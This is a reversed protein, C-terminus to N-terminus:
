HPPRGRRGMTVLGLVGSLFLWVAAPLPVASVVNLRLIDTGYDNFIEWQLALSNDWLTDYYFAGFEGTIDRAFMLDFSQGLSFFDESLFSIDLVSEAGLTVDGLVNLQDHLMGGSWDFEMQLTGDLNLGGYVDMFGTSNGPALTGAETIVLGNWLEVVGEGKLVGGTVRMNEAQLHGNNIFEGSSTVDLLGTMSSNNIISGTNNIDGAGYIQGDNVLTGSNNTTSGYGLDIQAASRNNIIGRNDMTGLNSIRAPSYFADGNNVIGNSLNVMAHQYEVWIDGRNNLVGANTIQQINGIYSHNHLTGINALRTNMSNTGDIGAYNNFTGYNRVASDANLNLASAPYSDSGNNFSGSNNIVFGQGVYIQGLRNFEGSNNLVLGDWADIYASEYHNFVGANNLEAPVAQGTYPDSGGHFFIQSANNFTGQNDLMATVSLHSWMNNNFVGSARNTLRVAAELNNNNEFSASNDLYSFGTLVGNNIFVGTNNIGDRSGGWRDIISNHNFAGSNNIVLWTNVDVNGNNNFEGSNNLVLGENGASYIRGDHDFVGSNNLEGPLVSWTSPDYQGNIAVESQNNFEGQNDLRGDVDVFSGNIHNFVGGARNILEGSVHVIGNNEFTGSNELYRTGLLDANNTFVGTNIVESRRDAYMDMFLSVNNNFVGSNHINIGQSSNISGNNNFEGSNTLLISEYGQNSIVGDHNFVGGNSIAGMTPMGSAPDHGDYLNIVGHNNFEGNSDIKATDILGDVSNNFLAAAQNLIYQHSVLSGNNNVTGTNNVPGALYQSNNLIGANNFVTDPGGSVQGDNNFTGSNLVSSAFTLDVMGGTNSFNGYNYFGAETVSLWGTNILEGFNHLQSGRDFYLDGNNLLVGSNLLQSNYYGHIYGNNIIEGQNDIWDYNDVASLVDITLSQDPAITLEAYCSFSLSYSLVACLPLRWNSRLM